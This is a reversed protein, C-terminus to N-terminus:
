GVVGKWTGGSGGKGLMFNGNVGGLTVWGFRGVHIGGCVGGHLVGGRVRLGGGWTGCGREYGVCGGGGRVGLGLGVYGFGM